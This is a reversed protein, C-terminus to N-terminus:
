LHYNDPFQNKTFTNNRSKWSKMSKELSKLMRECEDYQSKIEVHKSQKIYSKKFAINLYHKTQRVEGLAQNIKDIYFKVHKNSYGEAISAPASNSLKRLQYGIEHLEIEPFQFTLEHIELHLKCLNQYVELDEFSSKKNRM